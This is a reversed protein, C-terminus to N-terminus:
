KQMLASLKALDTGMNLYIQMLLYNKSCDMDSFDLGVGRGGLILTTALWCFGKSIQAIVKGATANIVVKARIVLTFNEPWSIFSSDRECFDWSEETLKISPIQKWKIKPVFFM